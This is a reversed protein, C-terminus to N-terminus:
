AGIEVFIPVVKVGSNRDVSDVEYARRTEEGIYEVFSILAIEPLQLRRGYRAAQKLADYYDRENTFSKLEVGYRHGGHIVLLDIQGNGTPFEPYVVAHKTGLFDCLFRYFSFHYVAEFLRLDKRRPADELLWDRNKRLHAQFRMALGRFNLGTQTYVDSMDEFPEHLKGMYRFLEYSFYNFLRKQVFPCAFKIYPGPTEGTEHDIVGNQYLYNIQRDDYRFEIKEETKFLDLVMAQYPDKNAKSIINLINNNPLAYIAAKYVKEFIEMTVPKEHDPQYYNFGETLLEGLWCTLGPQGSTETYVRRIVNQEVTQSSEREYWRFLGEVEECTLNPIHLSHQVNFPSGSVNEIGLVSRVGILALGHLLYVKEGTTKHIENFRATYIKRFKSAFKNIAQEGLADFEDIILILPKSLYQHTFVKPLDEWIHVAPLERGLFASLEYMFMRLVSEEDTQGKASELTIIVVDFQELQRLRKVAELMVSSKGTQRPAWVTIYHGGEEPSEGLLQTYAYNILDTRPAYYNFDTHIQGYSSFKRM